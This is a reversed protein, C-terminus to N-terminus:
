GGGLDGGGGPQSGPCPGITVPGVLEAQAFALPGVLAVKRGKAFPLAGGENKLLVLSQYSADLAADRHAPVAQLRCANCVCSVAIRCLAHNPDRSPAEAGLSHWESAGEGDFMGALFLPRMARRFARELTARTVLGKAVADPVGHKFTKGCDLDTGAHLIKGVAEVATATYNHSVFVDSDADSCHM